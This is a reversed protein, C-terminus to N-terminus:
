QKGPLGPTMKVILRSNNNSYDITELGQPAIRFVLTILNRNKGAGSLTQWSSGGFPQVWYLNASFFCSHNKNDLIVAM